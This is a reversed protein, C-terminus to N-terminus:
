QEDARHPDLAVVTQNTEAVTDVPVLLLAVPMLVGLIVGRSAVFGSVAALIHLSIASIFEKDSALYNKQTKRILEKM